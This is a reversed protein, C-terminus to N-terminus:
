KGKEEDEGVDKLAALASGNEVSRRAGGAALWKRM